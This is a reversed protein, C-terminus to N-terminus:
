STARRAGAGVRKRLTLTNVGDATAYAVADMASHIIALGLGREPLVAIDTPDFSLADSNLREIPLPRGRDSIAITLTPSAYDVVVDVFEGGRGAYGHEIANNVAEALCLEVVSLEEEPVGITSCYSQVHALADPVAALESAIRFQKGRSM